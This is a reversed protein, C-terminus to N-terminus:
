HKKKIEILIVIHFRDFQKECVVESKKGGNYLSKLASIDCQSIYPYDTEITPHMLDEPASSHAMIFTSPLFLHFVM